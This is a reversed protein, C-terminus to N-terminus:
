VWVEPKLSRAETGRELKWEVITRNLGQCWITLTILYVIEMGCHNSQSQCRDLHPLTYTWIIEMGCHNSQSQPPIWGSKELEYKWNGNWLPEISVGNWIRETQLHERIIEMGCHNSQSSFSPVFSAGLSFCKWEVITRNLRWAQRHPPRWKGFKWEVITRNLCLSLCLWLSNLFSKWEVITRNLGKENESMSSSKGLSSERKRIEMGCHNSQSVSESSNRKACFNGMEMGCHNSQSLLKIPFLFPSFRIEM